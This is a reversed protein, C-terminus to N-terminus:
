EKKIDKKPILNIENTSIGIDEYLKEIEKYEHIDMIKRQLCNKLVDNYIKETKGKAEDTAAKVLSSFDNESFQLIRKEDIKFAYKKSTLYFNEDINNKKLLKRCLDLPLPNRGLLEDLSVNLGDAIKILNEENPWAGKEYNRYTTYSINIKEAFEKATRYEKERFKILNDQFNM